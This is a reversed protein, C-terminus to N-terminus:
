YGGNMFDSVTKGNPILVDSYYFSSDKNKLYELLERYAM